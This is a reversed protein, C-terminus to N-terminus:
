ELTVDYEPFEQVPKLILMHNTTFAAVFLSQLHVGKEEEEEEEEEEEM